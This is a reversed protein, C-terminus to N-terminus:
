LGTFIAKQEKLRMMGVSSDSNTARLGNLRGNSNEFYKLSGRHQLGLCSCLYFENAAAGPISFHGFVSGLLSFGIFNASM